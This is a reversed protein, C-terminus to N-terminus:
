ERVKKRLFADLNGADDTGIRLTGGHAPVAM